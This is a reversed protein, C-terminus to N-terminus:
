QPAKLASTQAVAQTCAAADVTDPHATLGAAWPEPPWWREAAEALRPMLHVHSPLLLACSPLGGQMSEQRLLLRGREAGRPTVACM